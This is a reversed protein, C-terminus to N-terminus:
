SLAMAAGNLTLAKIATRFETSDQLALFSVTCLQGNEILVYSFCLREAGESDSATFQYRYANVDGFSADVASVSPISMTYGAASLSAALLKKGATKTLATIDAADSKQVSVECTYSGSASVLRATGEGTERSGLPLYVTLGPVLADLSVKDYMVFQKRLKIVAMRAAITAAEARTITEDPYFECTRGSGTLVGANYLLLISNYYKGRSVDPLHDIKNIAHLEGPPLARAFIYAVEARTAPLTYDAFDDAQILGNELAYDVFPQYWDAGSGSKLTGAGKTYIQHIRGAIALTEAVSLTDQPHFMGGSGNMLGYEYCTEVTPAYWAGSWVDKFTQNYTKAQVFNSMHNEEALAPACLTLALALSLMWATLKRM